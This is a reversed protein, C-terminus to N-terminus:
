RLMGDGRGAAVGQLRRSDTFNDDDQAVGAIGASCGRVAKQMRDSM